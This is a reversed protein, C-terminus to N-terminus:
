LGRSLILIQINSVLYSRKATTMVWNHYFLESSFDYKLLTLDWQNDQVMTLCPSPQKLFLSRSYYYNNYASNAM